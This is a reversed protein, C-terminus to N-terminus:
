RSPQPGLAQRPQPSGIKRELRALRHRLTEQERASLVCGLARLACSRAAQLDKSRHEHHVALALLAELDTADHAGPAVQDLLDVIRQWSVAAEDFRRERRHRLALRRLAERQVVPDGSWTEAADGDVARQYCEAARQAAGTREYLRGLALCEHANRTADAGEHLMRAVVSAVAALSVLDLRNHELVPSLQRADGTRVYHFYRSPIESGPVDAIRDFGLIAEELVGLACSGAYDSLDLRRSPQRATVARYQQRLAASRFYSGFAEDRERGRGRVRPLPRHRWLRRAPHLLDIHPVEDFPSRERHFLYRGQILPVDFTKGNFSGLTRGDALPQGAMRLMAAEHGYGGLFYQRTRFDHGEFWGYGILFACTGAGGSLGTTELDFFLFQRQLDSTSLGSTRSDPLGFTPAQSDDMSSFLSGTTDAQARMSADFAHLAEAHRELTEAYSGIEANGHRRDAAYLRDIVLCVGSGDRQWAGGLLAAIWASQEANARARPDEEVEYHIREGASVSDPVPAIGSDPTVKGAPPPIATRVGSQKLAERLRSRFSSEPGM